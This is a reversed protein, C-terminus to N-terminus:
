QRSQGSTSQMSILLHTLVDEAGLISFPIAVQMAPLFIALEQTPDDLRAKALLEGTLRAKERESSDPSVRCQLNQLTALRNLNRSETVRHKSAQHFLNLALRLMTPRLAQSPPMLVAAAQQRRAKAKHYPTM